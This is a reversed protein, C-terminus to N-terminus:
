ERYNIGGRHGRHNIGRADPLLFLSKGLFDLLTLDFVMDFRGSAARFSYFLFSDALTAELLYEHPKLWPMLDYWGFL